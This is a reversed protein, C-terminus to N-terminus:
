SHSTPSFHKDEYLERLERAGDVGRYSLLGVVHREESSYESGFESVLLFRYVRGLDFSRATMSTPIREIARDKHSICSGRAPLLALSSPNPHCTAALARARQQQVRLWEHASEHSIGSFTSWM